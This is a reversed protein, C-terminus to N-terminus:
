FFPCTALIDLAHWALSLKEQCSIMNHLNPAVFVHDYASQGIYSTSGVHAHTANATELFLCADCGHHQGPGDTWCWSCVWGSSCVALRVYLWCCVCRSICLLPAKKDVVFVCM